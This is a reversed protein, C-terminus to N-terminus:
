LDILNYLYCEKKETFFTRCFDNPLKITLHGCFSLPTIECFSTYFKGSSWINKETCKVIYAPVHLWNQMLEGHKVATLHLSVNESHSFFAFFSHSLWNVVTKQQNFLFWLPKSLMLFITFHFPQTESETYTILKAICYFRDSSVGPKFFM